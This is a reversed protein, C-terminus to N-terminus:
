MGVSAVGTGNVLLNGSIPNLTYTYSGPSTNQVCTCGDKTCVLHFIHVTYNVTVKINSATLKYTQPSQIWLDLSPNLIDHLDHQALQRDDTM